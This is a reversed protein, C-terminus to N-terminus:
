LEIVDSCCFLATNGEPPDLSLGCGFHNLVMMIIYGTLIFYNSINLIYAMYFIIANCYKPDEPTLAHSWGSYDAFMFFGIVITATIPLIAITSFCKGAKCRCNRESIKCYAVGLLFFYTISNSVLFMSAHTKDKYNYHTGAIMSGIPISIALLLLILYLGLKSHSMRPGEHQLRRTVRSPSNLEINQDHSQLIRPNEFSSVTEQIRFRGQSSSNMSEKVLGM